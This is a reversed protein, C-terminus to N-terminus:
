TTPRKRSMYTMVIAGLMALVAVFPFLKAFSHNSFNFVFGSINAYQYTLISQGFFYILVLFSLTYTLWEFSKKNKRMLISIANVLMLLACVIGPYLLMEGVRGDGGFLNARMMWAGLGLLATVLPILMGPSFPLATSQSKPQKKNTKDVPTEVIAPEDEVVPRHRPVEPEFHVSDTLEPNDKQLQDVKERLVSTNLPEKFLPKYAKGSRSEDHEELLWLLEDVRQVRENANKVLCRRVIERFPEPIKDFGDVDKDLINRMVENRSVGQETKGFPANGTFAEYMITGLSWLDLNTHLKGQNGYKSLSFQEPAMYAITGIILSSSPASTQDLVKSIGFDAIKPATKGNHHHLLINEPKLDRHIIGNSHLYQLGLMIGEFLISWVEPQHQQQMFKYLDGGNAYELVGVQIKDGFANTEELEYADYYRILNPHNLQIARKIEEFLSYKAPLQGSYKKIAVEIGLNLDRARYVSGFGGRGILDQKPDFEYTKKVTMMNVPGKQFSLNLIKPSAKM